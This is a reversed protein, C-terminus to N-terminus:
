HLDISVTRNLPEQTNAPTPRALDRIDHNTVTIRSRAVGYGEITTLVSSARGYELMPTVTSAEMTDMHTVVDVRLATCRSAYAAAENVITRAPPTLGTERFGFYVIFQRPACSSAGSQQASAIPTISFFIAFLLILFRM